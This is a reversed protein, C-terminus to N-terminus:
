GPRRSRRSARVRVRVRVLDDLADVPEEAGDALGDREAHLGVQGRDKRRAPSRARLHASPALARAHAGPEQRAGRRSETTTLGPRKVVLPATAPLMARAAGASAAAMKVKVRM